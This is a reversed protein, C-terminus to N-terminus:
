TAKTRCSLYALRTAPSTATPPADARSSCARRAFSRRPSPAAATLVSSTTSLTEGSGVITLTERVFQRARASVLPNCLLLVGFGLAATDGEGGGGCGAPSAELHGLPEGDPGDGEDVPM